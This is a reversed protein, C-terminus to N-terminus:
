GDALRVLEALLRVTPPSEDPTTRYRHTRRDSAIELEYLVDAKEGRGSAEALPSTPEAMLHQDVVLRVLSAIQAQGLRRAIPPYTLRIAERGHAVRLTRNSELVYRATRRLGNTADPQGMVLVNLALHPPTDTGSSPVAAPTSCGGAGGLLALAALWALAPRQGNRRAGRQDRDGDTTM